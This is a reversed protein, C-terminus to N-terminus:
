GKTRKAKEDDWAGFTENARTRAVLNALRKDYEAPLKRADEVYSARIRQYLPPFAQFNAWVAPDAELAARVKAPMVFPAALDPAVALGADTMKGEAILRRVREKNLETWNGKPRRPTLRQATRAADYKKAIGDIWGFCLAEEVVDLYSIADSSARLLWIEKKTRHHEVLWARWKARTKPEFTTTIEM